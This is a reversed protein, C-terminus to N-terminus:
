ESPRRSAAEAPETASPVAPVDAAATTTEVATAAPAAGSAVSRAMRLVVGTEARPDVATTVRGVSVASLVTRASPATEVRVADAIATRGVSVASPVTRASHVAPAPPVVVSTADEEGTM